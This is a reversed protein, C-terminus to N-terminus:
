QKHLGFRIGEPDRCICFRGFGPEDNVSEASGGLRTVDAMEADLDPVGLCSFVQTLITVM